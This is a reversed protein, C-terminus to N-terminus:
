IDHTQNSEKREILRRRKEEKGIGRSEKKRKLRGKAHITCHQLLMQNELGREGKEHHERLKKM